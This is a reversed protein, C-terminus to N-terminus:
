PMVAPQPSTAAGNQGNSDAAPPLPEADQLSAAQAFPNWASQPADVWGQRSSLYWAGQMLFASCFSFLLIGLLARLRGQGSALALANSLVLLSYAMLVLLLGDAVDAPLWSTLPQLLQVSSALVILALLPRTFRWPNVRLWLGIFPVFLLTELWNYGICFGIRGPLYHGLEPSGGSTVLGLLSILLALQWWPHHYAPLPKVRFRFLDLADNLLRNM